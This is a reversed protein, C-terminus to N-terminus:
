LWNVQVTIPKGDVMMHRLYTNYAEKGTVGPPQRISYVYAVRNPLQIELAGAAVGSLLLLLPVCLLM